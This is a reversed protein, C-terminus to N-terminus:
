INRSSYASRWGAKGYGQDRAEDEVELSGGDAVGGGHVERGLQLLNM